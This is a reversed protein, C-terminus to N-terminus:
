DKKYVGASLVFQGTQHNKGIGLRYEKDKYFASLQLGNGQDDGLQDIRFYLHDKVSEFDIQKRKWTIGDEVYAPQKRLYQLVESLTMGSTQSKKQPQQAMELWEEVSMEAAEAQQKIFKKLEDLTMGKIM